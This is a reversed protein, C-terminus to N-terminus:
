LELFAPDALLGLVVGDTLPVVLDLLQFGLQEDALLLDLGFRFGRALHLGHVIANVGGELLRVELELRAADLDLLSLALDIAQLKDVVGERVLVVLEERLFLQQVLGLVALGSAEFLLFRRQKLLFGSNQPLSTM